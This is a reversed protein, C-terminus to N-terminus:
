CRRAGRSLRQLTLCMQEYGEDHVPRVAPTNPASSDHTIGDETVGVSTVGVETVSTEEQLQKLKDQVTM